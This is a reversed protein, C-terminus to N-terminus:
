KPSITDGQRVGKGLQIKDTKPDDDIKVHFTANDYINNIIASYRSDIRADDM